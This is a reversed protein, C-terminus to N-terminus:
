VVKDALCERIADIFDPDDWPKEVFRAGMDVAVQEHDPDNSLVVTPVNFECVMHTAYGIHHETDTGLDIIALDYDMKSESPPEETIIFELGCRKGIRELVKQIQRQCHPDTEILLIKKQM